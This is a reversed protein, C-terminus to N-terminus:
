DSRPSFITLNFADEGSIMNSVNDVNLEIKLDPKGMNFYGPIQKVFKTFIKINVKKKIEHEHDYEIVSLNM